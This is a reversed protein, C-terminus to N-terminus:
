EWEDGWEDIDNLLDYECGRQGRFQNYIGNAFGDWRKDAVVAVKARTLRHFEDDECYTLFLWKGDFKVELEEYTYFVREEEPIVEYM